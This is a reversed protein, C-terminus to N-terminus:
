NDDPPNLSIKLESAKNYVSDETRRLHNAIYETTRGKDAYRKLDDVDQDSWPANNNIGLM